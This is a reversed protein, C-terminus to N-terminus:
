KIGVTEVAAFTKALRMLRVNLADSVCIFDDTADVSNPWAMPIDKTPVLDGPLGGLSDRNGYTGFALLRNGENDIVSVQPLLGTPYYIRGYDDVGFRPTSLGPPFPGYLVDYVKAPAAPETPFLDGGEVTGTPAYKYIRGITSTFDKDKEFGQPVDRVKAGPVHLGVYLNGRPDFRVGGSNPNKGGFGKFPLKQWPAQKGDPMFYHLPGSYDDARHEKDPLVGLTALGGGPAVAMGHERLGLFTWCCTVQTTVSNGASGVPAPTFYEEDMKWRQTDGKWHFHTYLYRGRADIALGSALLPNKADKMCPVFKPDKWDNIRFLGGHGDSIYADGTKQDLMMWRLDLMQQRSGSQSFDKVLELGAGTDRYVRAPLTTYAVWVLVEGKDEVVALLSNEGFGGIDDRLPLMVPSEGDKTWDNFRLLALKGHGHYNGFCTTVYVAKSKPSVAVADPNEVPISRLLKGEKDLVAVRKNARDCVFVHGESDTAVGQLAAHPNTSAHGIVGRNAALEKEDLAFFVSAKRSALDVKWVQGDPEFGSLYQSKGDPACASFLEKCLQQPVPQGDVVCGQRRVTSDTGITMTRNFTEREPRLPMAICLTGSEPTAILGGVWAGDGGGGLAGWQPVFSGWGYNAQLTYTGDARAIVGWGKVDEVPKGAPPPFITRRYNGRADYQRLVPLGFLTANGLVYVNGDSKAELGTVRYQNHDGQGSHASWFQYPDGGVIKDLKAGMGIRVRVSFPQPHLTSPPPQGYDDRGDWELSQSLGAKLPAPPPTEGGMVGAALHRVVEGKADLVAVEVDTKGSAAFSITVKEGAKSATPKTAFSVAPEAGCAAITLIAAAFGLFARTMM